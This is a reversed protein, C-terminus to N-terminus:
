ARTEETMQNEAQLARPPSHQGTVPVAAEIAVRALHAASTGAPQRSIEEAAAALAAPPIGAIVGTM